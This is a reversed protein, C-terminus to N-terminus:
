RLILYHSKNDQKSQVFGFKKYLNAAAHNEKSVELRIENNGRDRICEHILKTAIGQKVFDRSVSVNTIFYYQDNKYVALLGVLKGESWAEHRTANTLIKAIYSDPDVRAFLEQLFQTDCSELHAAVDSHDATDQKYILDPMM